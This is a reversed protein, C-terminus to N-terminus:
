KFFLHRHPYIYDFAAYLSLGLAILTPINFLLVAWYVNNFIWPASLYALSVFVIAFSLVMTKLKGYFSAAININHKNLVVRTGDVVLDRIIFIVTIWFPIINYFSLFILVSTTIVKDALPDWLKGFSSIANWKRALYGDVYDTAMAIIFIILTFAVIGVDYSYEGKYIWMFPFLILLPVILIMRLITLYNPINEKKINKLNSFTNNFKTKIVNLNLKAKM